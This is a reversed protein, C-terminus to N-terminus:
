TNMKSLAFNKEPAQRSDDERARTERGANVNKKLRDDM